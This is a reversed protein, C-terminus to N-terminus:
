VVRVCEDSARVCFPSPGFFFLPFVSVFSPLFLFFSCNKKQLVQHCGVVCSVLAILVVSIIWICCIWWMVLFPTNDGWLGDRCGAPIGGGGVGGVGQLVWVCGIIYWVTQFLAAVYQVGASLSLSLSHLPPPNTIPSISLSLSRAYVCLLSLPRLPYHPSLTKLFFTPYCPQPFLM